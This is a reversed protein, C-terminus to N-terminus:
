NLVYVYFLRFGVSSFLFGGVCWCVCIRNMLNQDDLDVRARLCNCSVALKKAVKALVVSFVVSVIQSRAYM